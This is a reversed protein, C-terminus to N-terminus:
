PRVMINEPPYSTQTRPSKNKNAGILPSISKKRRRFRRNKKKYEKINLQTPKLPKKTQKKSMLPSNKTQGAYLTIKKESFKRGVGQFDLPADRIYM